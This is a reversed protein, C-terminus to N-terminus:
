KFQGHTVPKFPSYEENTFKTSRAYPTLASNGEILGINESTLGAARWERIATRAGDERTDPKIHTGQSLTVLGETLGSLPCSLYSLKRVNAKLEAQQDEDLYDQLMGPPTDSFLQDIKAALSFSPQPLVLM